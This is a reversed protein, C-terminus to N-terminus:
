RAACNRWSMPFSATWGSMVVFMAATLVLGAGAVVRFGLVGVLLGGAIAGIPVAVLLRLRLSM